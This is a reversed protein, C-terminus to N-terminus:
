VIWSMPVSLNLTAIALRAVVVVGDGNEASIGGPDLSGPGIVEAVVATALRLHEALRIPSDRGYGV